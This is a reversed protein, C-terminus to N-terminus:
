LKEPHFWRIHHEQTGPEIVRRCLSCEITLVAAGPLIANIARAVFAWFRQRRTGCVSTIM